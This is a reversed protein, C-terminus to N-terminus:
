PVIVRPNICHLIANPAPPSMATVIGHQYHLQLEIRPRVTDSWKAVQSPHRAAVKYRDLFLQDIVYPSLRSREDPRRGPTTPNPNTEPPQDAAPPCQGFGTDAVGRRDRLGRDPSGSNLRHAQGAFVDGGPQDRRHRLLHDVEVRPDLVGIGRYLISKAAVPQGLHDGTHGSHAETESGFEEGGDAIRTNKSGGVVQGGPRPQRRHGSIGTFAGASQMGRGAVVSGQPPHEVHGRQGADATIGFGAGVVVAFARLALTRDLSDDAQSAATDVDQPCEHAVFSGPCRVHRDGSSRSSLTM